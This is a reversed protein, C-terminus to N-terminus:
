EGDSILPADKQHYAIDHAAIQEILNVMVAKAEDESLIKVNDITPEDYPILSSM